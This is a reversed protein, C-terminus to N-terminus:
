PRGQPLGPTLDSGVSLAPSAGAAFEPHEAELANWSRSGRDYDEDSM